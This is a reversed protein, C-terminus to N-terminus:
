DRARDPKGGDPPPPPGVGTLSAVMASYVGDPYRSYYKLARVQAEGDMHLNVLARIALLARVEAMPSGPFRRDGEAALGLAGAPDTTVLQHLRDMLATETPPPDLVWAPTPETVAVSRSCAVVSGAFWLVALSIRGLGDALRQAKSVVM